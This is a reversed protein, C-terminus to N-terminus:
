ASRPAGSPHNHAIVIAAAGLLIAPKFTERPHVLSSDLIGLSVLNVGLITNKSDLLVVYLAERDMDAFIPALIREVDAPSHITQSQSWASEAEKVASVRFRPIAYPIPLCTQEPPSTHARSKRARAM